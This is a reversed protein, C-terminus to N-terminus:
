IALPHKGTRPPHFSTPGTGLNGALVPARAAHAAHASGLSLPVRGQAVRAAGRLEPSRAPQRLRTAMHFGVPEGELPANRSAVSCCQRAPAPWEPVSPSTGQVHGREASSSCQQSRSVRRRHAERGGGVDWRAPLSALFTDGSPLQPVHAGPDSPCCECWPRCLPARPCLSGLSSRRCTFLEWLLFCCQLFSRCKM